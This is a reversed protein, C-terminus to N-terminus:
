SETEYSLILPNAARTEEAVLAALKQWLERRVEGFDHFPSHPIKREMCFTALSKSKRAFVMDACPAAQQDSTGDGIFIVPSYGRGENQLLQPKCTACGHTCHVSGHPFTTIMFRERVELKSAFIRFNGVVGKGNWEPRALTRRIVWDFGDSVIYFPFGRAVCDRAFELFHPDVPVSDVLEGLEKEHARVLSMQERLCERSGIKGALWQEEVAHWAPDAFSELILDTTDQLTITGDFDCFVIPKM